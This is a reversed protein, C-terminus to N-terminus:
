CLPLMTWRQGTHVATTRCPAHLRAARNQRPHIV